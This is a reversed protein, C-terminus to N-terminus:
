IVRFGASIILKENGEPEDYAAVGTWKLETGEQVGYPWEYITSFKGSKLAALIVGMETANALWIITATQSFPNATRTVSMEHAGVSASVKATDLSWTIGQLIKRDNIYPLQAM